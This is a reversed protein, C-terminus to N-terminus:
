HVGEMSKNITKEVRSNIIMNYLVVDDPTLEQSNSTDLTYEVGQVYADKEQENMKRFSKLIGSNIWSSLEIGFLGDHNSIEEKELVTAETDDPYLKFIEYNEFLLNAMFKNVPLMEKYTYGYTHMDNISVTADPMINIISSM